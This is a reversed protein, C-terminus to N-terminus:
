RQGKLFADEDAQRQWEAPSKPNLREMQALEDTTLKPLHRIFHVLAWSDRASASTGDGFSPMGTLRVGNEVISFLEGDSLSQTAALTMDPTRPYMRKGLDGGKGDNGHCAACHDAFHARAADLVRPTLPVPNTRTRMNAPAAWRRMVRALAAETHTPKDRASFGDRVRRMALLAVFFALVIAVALLARAKM